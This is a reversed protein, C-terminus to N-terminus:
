VAESIRELNKLGLCLDSNRSLIDGVTAIYPARFGHYEKEPGIQSFFIKKRALLTPLGRAM